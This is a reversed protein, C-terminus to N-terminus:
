TSQFSPTLNVAFAEPLLDELCTSIARLTCMGTYAHTGDSPELHREDQELVCSIMGRDHAHMTRAGRGPATHQVEMTWGNMTCSARHPISACSWCVLFHSSSTGMDCDVREACESRKGGQLAPTQMRIQRDLVTKTGTGMSVAAQLWILDYCSAIADRNFLLPNSTKDAPPM